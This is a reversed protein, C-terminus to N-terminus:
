PKDQFPWWSVSQRRKPYISADIVDPNSARWEAREADLAAEYERRERRAQLAMGVAAFAALGIGAACLIAVLIM